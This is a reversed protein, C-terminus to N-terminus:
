QRLAQEVAELLKEYEEAAEGDRGMRFPHAITLGSEFAEM